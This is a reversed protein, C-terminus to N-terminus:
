RRKRRGRPPMHSKKRAPASKPRGKGRPAAPLPDQSGGEILEFTLGGTLPQAAVLRVQVRDGLRFVQGHRRGVLAHRKEDHDYFDNPLSSVPIIGDAGTEDLQVFLGARIVGSVRGGFLEGTRNSLFAATYRDVSEREAAAARRETASIHDGTEKFGQVERPLGDDGFGYAGILARHVLLDAYRRIPSTFHAYRSLALGFHGLNKPSYVAQSQSRLVLSNIMDAYPTKAAKQLLKTFHAPRIVQGRPLHLDLGDLFERLAEIRTPDPQDHVRYMCPWHRKELAEAAAVNAAIMFEEILRHSDLRDRAEIKLVDGKADLHVRREPLDLELTGRAQRAKMLARYAGYLPKIVPELLPATGADTRGDMAGQAREYTLRAASRMLGRLFHHRQKKGDADIVIGVAMVPRDEDPKLSCWGNSLEEPLMPVVRDPFYVSNGRERASKDLADGTRVYHAVDAIAVLLKWGGPNKPDTDAEAHVADDFDRADEGDITVLPISRLDTRNGLTAPGAAEAQAIAAQPFEVPIGHAAISILSVSRAEGTKGLREVIRARPIGMPKGPEVEAVVIEGAQVGHISRSDIMFETRIRRDAPAIRLSGDSARSVLGVVRTARSELKRIPRAEYEDADVRHLRVLVRDGPGLADHSRAGPPATRSARKEEIVLIRPEADDPRINVPRAWLDGDEDPGIIQVVTVEPLEGAAGLRRGRGRDVAGERELEKLLSKLPIRDSGKLHFARAIERKGVPTESERIFRLVEEKTPFPAAKKRTKHGAEDPAPKTKSGSGSRGREPRSKSKSL